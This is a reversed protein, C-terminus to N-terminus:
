MRWKDEPLLSEPGKEVQDLTCIGSRNKISLLGSKAGDAYTQVVAFGHSKAYRQIAEAQNELSYQQQDASVRLYQAAPIITTSHM